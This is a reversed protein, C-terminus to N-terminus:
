IDWHDFLRLHRFTSNDPNFSGVTETGYVVYCYLYFSYMLAMIVIGTCITTLVPSGLRSFWHGLLVATLLSSFQLAPFYHHYYLVRNMTYFPLYHFLYAILLWRCWYTLESLDHQQESGNGRQDRFAKWSILVVAAVLAVLNLALVLPNGLLVVRFQIDYWPFASYGIPWMWPRQVFKDIVDLKMRNNRFKIVQHTELLRDFFGAQLHQFSSNEPMHPNINEEIIWENNPDDVQRTCSIEEHGLGWPFPLKKQTWTLYCGRSVGQCQLRIRSTLADVLNTENGIETEAAGASDDSDNESSETETDNQEIGVIKVVWLLQIEDNRIEDTQSINAPQSYVLYHRHSVPAATKNCALLAGTNNHYIRVLDDHNLYEIPEAYHGDSLEPNADAFLIRFYNNKDKIAVQTVQQKKGPAVKYPFTLNHSHLYSGSIATNRLTVLNGFAVEKPQSLNHLNNGVLGMQFGPSYSSEQFYMLSDSRYLLADHIAFFGIYVVIPVIVFALVRALFQWLFNFWGTTAFMDWLSSATHLGVVGVMFLGVFKVSILCGLSVGTFLLSMWWSMSFSSQSLQHLKCLGTFTAMMFFMLPSDLLIFKSLLLTGTEAVVFIAALMAAPLCRTMTWASIFALPGLAAGMLTCYMRITIIEPWGEYSDGPRGFIFSGNYGSLHAFLTLVLKGGPPHVDFFYTGNLYMSIMKGFHTEDWIITNPKDIYHMRTVVALASSVMFCIWWAEASGSAFHDAWKQLRNEWSSETTINKTDVFKLNKTNETIKDKTATSSKEFATKQIICINKKVVMIIIKLYIPVYSTFLFLWM